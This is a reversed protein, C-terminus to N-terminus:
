KAAVSATASGGLTSRVTVLQPLVPWNFQGNYIGGGVNTLTGIVNGTTTEGVTLLATTSTSTAEVSPVGKSVFYEAVKIAVTDPPLSPAPPTVTLTASATPGGSTASITVTTPVTVASTTVNFTGNTSNFPVTTALVSAVAPNSSSLAVPTGAAGPSPSGLTVVGVALNSGVV